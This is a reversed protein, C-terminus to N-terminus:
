LSKFIMTSNSSEKLPMKISKEGVTQLESGVCNRAFFNDGDADPSRLILTPQSVRALLWGGGGM